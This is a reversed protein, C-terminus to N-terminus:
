MKDPIENYTFEFYKNEYFSFDKKFSNIRNLKKFKLDSDILSNESAGVFELSQKIKEKFNTNQQSFTSRVQTNQSIKIKPLFINFHRFDEEGGVDFFKVTKSLNSTNKKFFSVREFEPVGRTPHNSETLKEQIKNMKEKLKEEKLEDSTIEKSM